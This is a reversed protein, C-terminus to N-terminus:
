IVLGGRRQGSGQNSNDNSQGDSLSATDTKLDGFRTLWHSAFQSASWNPDGGNARVAADGVIDGARADPNSLLKAAGAPGQQHALYMEQFTPERGLSKVLFDHNATTLRDMAMEQDDRNNIDGNGGYLAWTGPMFQYYGKAPGNGMNRGSDSEIQAVRAKYAALANNAWPTAPTKNFLSGVLGKAQGWAGQAGKLADGFNSTSGAFDTVPSQTEPAQSAAPNLQNLGGAKQANQPAMAGMASTQGAYPARAINSIQQQGAQQQALM